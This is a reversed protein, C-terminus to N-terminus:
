LNMRIGISHTGDFPKTARYSYDFGFTSGKEKSVPIEITFGASLGKQATTRYNEKSDDDNGIGKEFVYGARLMLFSKFGYELGFRVEDKTFSNSTFSVAPTIRHIKNATDGGIYYDYAGGINVQSPLEFSESRYDLTYSDNNNLNVFRSGLGDGSFQMKPGVNKLSIGFKVNNDKGAIYQIGADLAVSGARADPIAQNIVRLCMGGFIHDTFGKAYSLGINMFSITFDGLGGEPMETTTYEIDGFSMSMLGLALVGSEGVRQSFGFSNISIDSGKLYNVNSFLLETKKTFATGAVNLFQGELGRVGAINAGAWGSSRAWPNILLESAGAQGSRDQNGAYVNGTRFPHIGVFIAAFVAATLINTKYNM